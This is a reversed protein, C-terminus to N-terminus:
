SERVDIYEYGANIKVINEDVKTLTVCGSEDGEMAIIGEATVQIGSRTAFEVVVPEEFSIDFVRFKM